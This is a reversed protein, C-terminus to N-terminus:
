KGGQQKSAEADGQQKTQSQIARDVRKKMRWNRNRCNVGCFKADPRACSFQKGCEDCVYWYHHANTATRRTKKKM